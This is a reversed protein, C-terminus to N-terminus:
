GGSLALIARLSTGFPLRHRHFLRNEIRTITLALRNIPVPPVSPPQSSPGVLAEKLRVLLKLPVLWHFFYADSVLDLGAERVARHLSERSYRRRHHNWEDHATWLWPYAPVTVLIRGGEALLSAAHSLAEVDRDLHELVDLMLVLGFRERPRFTTDFPGIRIRGKRREAESVAEPDLEVGQPEGFAELAPFLLGDGCGVDLIQGFGEPPRLEALIELIEGERTRWWWHHRHLRRYREVYSPDM